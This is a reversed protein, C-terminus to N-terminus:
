VVSGILVDGVTMSVPATINWKKRAEALMGARIQSDICLAFIKRGCVPRQVTKIIDLNQQASM